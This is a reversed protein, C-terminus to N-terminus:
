KLDNIGEVMDDLTNWNFEKEHKYDHSYLMGSITPAEINPNAVSIIIGTYGKVNEFDKPAGLHIWAGNNGEKHEIHEADLKCHHRLYPLVTDELYRVCLDYNSPQM